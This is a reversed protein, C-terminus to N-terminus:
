FSLLMRTANYSVSPKTSLGTFNVTSFTGTLNGAQILTITTGSAPQSSFVVNLTGGLTATNSVNMLGSSGSGVNCTVTGTSQSTLNGNVNLSGSTSVELNGSTVLLGSSGLASSSVAELTGAEIRTGGSYSNNGTLTLTGTGQKVLRGVGSIDNRWKDAAYFNNHTSAVQTADMNVYITGAFSGYGDAAAFLNLRGWGEADDLLPYGSAIETTRLVERRQIATLYPLRTELLVEAGKPVIAAVTTPNIQSFGYTLRSLYNAKNTAWDSFLSQDNTHAFTYLTADTTNTQAELYTHATTFATTKTTANNTDNLGGATIATGLMRGGMVDLPSHMGALIRNNGLESARTILEQFREPVAYAMLLAEDFGEATHGSPFGGDTYATTSRGPLLYPAVSVKSSYTPYSEATVRDAAYYGTDLTTTNETITSDNALRWPRPYNFYYKAPNSSAGSNRVAQILNITNYLPYSSTINGYDNGGDNYAYVNADSPVSTLTTSIGSGTYFYSALPGFGQIDSYVKGHRDDFFANNAQTPTRAATVNAVYTINASLVSSNKVSGNLYATKYGSSNEASSGSGGSTWLADYGSLLNLAANTSETNYTSATPNQNTLYNDVYAAAGSPQPTAPAAPDAAASLDQTTTSSSSKSSNGALNSCSLVSVTSLGIAIIWGASRSKFRM